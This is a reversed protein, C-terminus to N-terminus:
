PDVPVGDLFILIFYTIVLGHGKQLFCNVLCCGVSVTVHQQPLYTHCPYHQVDYLKLFALRIGLGRVGLQDKLGSRVLGVQSKPLCRGHHGLTPCYERISGRNLRGGCLAKLRNLRLNRPTKPSRAM